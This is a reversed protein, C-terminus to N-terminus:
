TDLSPVALAATGGFFQVATNSDNALAGGVTATAVAGTGGGGTFSVTPLTTYGSGGNTIQVGIVSLSVTTTATAGSGTAGTFTVTPASTYGSGGSTITVASVFSGLNVPGSLSGDSAGTAANSLGFKPKRLTQLLALTSGDFLYAAGADTLITNDALF